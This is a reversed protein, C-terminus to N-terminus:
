APRTTSRPHPLPMQARSNSCAAVINEADVIYSAMIRSARRFAGPAFNAQADSGSTSM